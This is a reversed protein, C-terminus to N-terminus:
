STAEAVKSEIVAALANVSEFHRKDFNADVLKIRFHREIDLVLQLIDVSDIELRGGVLPQDDHLDEATLDTIRLSKLIISKLQDRVSTMDSMQLM